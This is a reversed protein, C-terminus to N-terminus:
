GALQLRLDNLKSAISGDIVDDGVRVRLGGLISPDVVQNIRLSQGYQAALSKELRELQAAGLPSATTVTAVAFGRQDAVTASAERVLAAIRRDRPQQVLHELIAITQASAKGALLRSVLEAKASPSGLKSSIALELEADSTVASGFAFLEAVINTDEPASEAAARLALEEIGALLDDQSSWRGAVLASLLEIARPNLSSFVRAIISQKATPEAAPDALAARLQSSNGLVRGAAFLQEATALDANGSQATLVAQANALAERTASGM